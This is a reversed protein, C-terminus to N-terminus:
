VRAAPQRDHTRDRSVCDTLPKDSDPPGTKFRGTCARRAVKFVDVDSSCKGVASLSVTGPTV